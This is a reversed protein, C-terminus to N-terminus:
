SEATIVEITVNGLLNLIPLFTTIPAPADDAFSSDGLKIHAAGIGGQGLMADLPIWRGDLHAETWMHGAFANRGPLYILGAVIRSPINKVRLMAALLVAHETCDGERGEAVEAATALATSFNKETVVDYVHKEMRLAIRSPHFEGASAQQAHDRVRFDNIQLFRTDALYEADVKTQRRGQPVPAATVTLEIAHPGLRRISQTGGGALYKAPDDNKMTIRYVARRTEHARPIPDTKVLTQIALDLEVGPIEKLAEEAP